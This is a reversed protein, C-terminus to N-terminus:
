GTYKVGQIALTSMVLTDSNDSLIVEYDYKSLYDICEQKASEKFCANEYCIVSPRYKDLAISQIVDFDSGETDIQLWDFEDLHHKCILADLTTAKMTVIKVKNRTKKNLVRRVYPDKDATSLCEWRELGRKPVYMDVSSKSSHIAVNEFLFGKMDKHRDKLIGFPRKQPEIFLGRWQYKEILKQLFDDHRGDYAGVQIFTIGQRHFRELEEVFLNM